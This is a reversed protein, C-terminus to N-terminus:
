ATNGSAPECSLCSGVCKGLKIELLCEGTGKEEWSAKKGKGEGVLGQSCNFGQEAGWRCCRGLGASCRLQEAYQHSQPKQLGLEFLYPTRARAQQLPVPFSPKWFIQRTRGGHARM